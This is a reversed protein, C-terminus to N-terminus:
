PTMRAVCYLHAGFIRKLPRPLFRFIVGAARVAAIMWRAQVWQAFGPNVFSFGTETVWFGGCELEAVLEKLSFPHMAPMKPDVVSGFLPNHLNPVAVVFVGNERLVARISRLITCRDEEALFHEYTGDSVVADFKANLESLRFIDGVVATLNSVYPEGLRVKLKQLDRVLKESIDLATACIGRGALAFSTLAWGCGAELVSQSARPPVEATSLAFLGGRKVRLGGRFSLMMWSAAAWELRLPGRPRRVALLRAEDFPSPQVHRLVARFFAYGSMRGILTRFTRADISSYGKEEDITKVWEESAQHLHGSTNM